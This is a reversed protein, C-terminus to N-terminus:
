FKLARVNRHRVPKPNKKQRWTFDITTVRRRRPAATHGRGSFRRQLSLRCRGPYGTVRAMQIQKVPHLVGSTSQFSSRQFTFNDPYVGCHMYASPPLGGSMRLTLVLHLHTAERRPRKLEPSLDGSLFGPPGWLQHPGEPFPFIDQGHRSEFVPDSPHHHITSILHFTTPSSLWNFFFSLLFVTTSFHSLLPNLGVLQKRCVAWNRAPPLECHSNSTVGVTPIQHQV